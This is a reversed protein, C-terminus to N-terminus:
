KLVIHLDNKEQPYYSYYLVQLSLWVSFLVPLWVKYISTISKIIHYRLIDTSTYVANVIFAANIFVAYYFYAYSTHM